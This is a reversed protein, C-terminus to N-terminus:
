AREKCGADRRRSGSAMCQLPRISIHFLSPIGSVGQETELNRESSVETWIWEDTRSSSTKMMWDGDGGAMLSWRMSSSM